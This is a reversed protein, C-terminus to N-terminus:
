FGRNTFVERLKMRDARPNECVTQCSELLAEPLDNIVDSSDTNLFERAKYILQDATEPFEKRVSWLVSLVFDSNALAKTEYAPNYNKKNKGDKPMALSYKKIKSAIHANDGLTTAFYDAMGENVPTSHSIVLHDSLAMHSFEHYIIEPIMATDLYYYKELFLKDMHKTTQLALVTLAITGVEQFVSTEYPTALETPHFIDLLTNQIFLSLTTSEVPKALMATYAALPNGAAGVGHNPLDATRIKKVPRFWIERDWAAIPKGDPTKAGDMPTGPPISLANNYQPEILDNYYHGLDSFKNIHEIRVTIKPLNEVYKSHITNVWFDRAKNLHYYVNAAKLRTTEDVENLAIADESKGKVVKFYKGDFQTTSILNPMEASVIMPAFHKGRVLVNQSMQATAPNITGLVFSCVICVLSFNKSFLM